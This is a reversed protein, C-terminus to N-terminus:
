VSIKKILYNISIITTPLLLGIIILNYFQKWSNEASYSYKYEASVNLVSFNGLKSSFIGLIFDYLFLVCIYAIFAYKFKEFLLLSITIGLLVLALAFTMKSFLAYLLIGANLSSFNNIVLGSLFETVLMIIFYYLLVFVFYLLIHILNSFYITKKTTKTMLIIQYRKQKYDWFWNYFCIVSFDVLVCFFILSLYVDTVVPINLLGIFLLDYFLIIIPCVILMSLSVKWNKFTVYRVINWNVLNSTKLKHDM